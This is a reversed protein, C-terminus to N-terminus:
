KELKAKLREQQKEIMELRAQSAEKKKEIDATLQEVPAQVMLGGVIRYAHKATSLEKLAMESESLQQQVAQRQVALSHLNQEITQRENNDM